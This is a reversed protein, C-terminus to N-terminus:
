AAGIIILRRRESAEGLGAFNIVAKGISYNNERLAAIVQMLHLRFRAMNLGFTQEIVVVRPQTEKLFEHLGFLIAENMEDNRGAVTHAPSFFQCPFSLMLLDVGRLSAGYVRLVDFFDMRLRHRVDRHNLSYSQMARQDRDFAWVVKFEASKAGVSAFGAGCFGDCATYSQDASPTHLSGGRARRQERRLRRDSMSFRTNCESDRLNLWMEKTVRSLGSQTAAYQIVYKARCILLKRATQEDPSHLPINTFRLRWREITSSRGIVIDKITFNELYLDDESPSSQPFVEQIMIVEPSDIRISPFMQDLRQFRVGRIVLINSNVGHILLERIQLFGREDSLTVVDGIRIGSRPDRGISDWPQAIRFEKFLRHLDRPPLHRTIRSERMNRSEGILQVDDDDPVETGENDGSIVIPEHRRSGDRGVADTTTPM